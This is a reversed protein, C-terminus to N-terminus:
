SAQITLKQAVNPRIPVNLVLSNRLRIARSESDGGTNLESLKANSISPNMAAMLSFAPFSTTPSLLIRSWFEETALKGAKLKIAAM